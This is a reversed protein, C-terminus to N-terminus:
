LQVLYLGIWYIEKFEILTLGAEAVIAKWEAPPLPMGKGRLRHILIYDLQSYQSPQKMATDPTDSPLTETFLLLKGPFSKQIQRLVDVIRQKGHRGIEHLLYISAVVDIQSRTEDNLSLPQVGIEEQILRIRSELGYRNVKEQAAAIKQASKDIGIGQFHPNSRAIQTLFGGAACALHLMSHLKHQELIKLVAPVLRISTLQETGLGTHKGSRFKEIEQRTMDKRLLPGINALLGGYGGINLNLTGRFVVNSLRSGYETLEFQGVAFRAVGRGALHNLLTELVAADVHLAEAAEEVGFRPHSLSYEYFGSDWLAFLVNTLFVDNILRIGEMLSKVGEADSALKRARAGEALLDYPDSPPPPPSVKPITSTSMRNEQSQSTQAFVHALIDANAPKAHAPVECQHV